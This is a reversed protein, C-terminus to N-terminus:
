ANGYSPGETASHHLPIYTFSRLHVMKSWVKLHMSSAHAPQSLRDLGPIADASQDVHNIALVGAAAAERINTM